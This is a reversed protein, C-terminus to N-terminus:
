VWQLFNIKKEVSNKCRYQICAKIWLLEIKQALVEAIESITPERRVMM